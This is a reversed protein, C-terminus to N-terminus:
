IIIMLIHRIEINIHKMKDVRIHHTYIHLKKQLQKNLQLSVGKSNFNKLFQTSLPSLAQIPTMLPGFHAITYGVKMRCIMLCQQTDSLKHIIYTDILLAHIYHKAHIYM